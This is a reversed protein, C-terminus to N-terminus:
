WCSVGTCRNGAYLCHETFIKHAPPLARVVTRSSHAWPLQQVGHARGPERRKKGPACDVVSICM